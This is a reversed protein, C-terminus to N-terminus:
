RSLTECKQPLGLVKPEDKIYKELRDYAKQYVYNKILKTNPCYTDSTSKIWDCHKKRSKRVLPEAIRKTMRTCPESKYTDIGKDSKDRKAPDEEKRQTRDKEQVCRRDEM